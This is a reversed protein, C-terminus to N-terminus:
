FNYGFGISFFSLETGKDFSLYNGSVEIFLKQSISKSISFNFNVGVDFSSVYQNEINYVEVGDINHVSFKSVTIESRYRPSLSSAFNIRFFDNFIPFTLGVGLNGVCYFNNHTNMTLSKTYASEVFNLSLSGYINKFFYHNYSNNFTIGEFDNAGIKAYGLSIVYNNQAGLFLQLSLFTLLFLKKM